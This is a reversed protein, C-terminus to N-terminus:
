RCAWRRGAVSDGLPGAVQKGANARRSGLVQWVRLDNPTLTAAPSGPERTWVDLAGSATGELPQFAAALDALLRRHSAAAHRQLRAACADGHEAYWAAMREHEAATRQTKMGVHRLASRFRGLTLVFEPRQEQWSTLMAGHCRQRGYRGLYRGTPRHRVKLRAARAPPVLVARALLRRQGATSSAPRHDQRTRTLRGTTSLSWACTAPARPQLPHAAAVSRRCGSVLTNSTAAPVISPPEASAWRLGPEAFRPRPQQSGWYYGISFLAPDNRNRTYRFAVFGRREGFARIAPDQRDVDVGCRAQAAM